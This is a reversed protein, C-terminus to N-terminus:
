RAGVTSMIDRAVEDLVALNQKHHVLEETDWEADEEAAKIDAVAKAKLEALLPEIKKIVELDWCDMPKLQDVRGSLEGTAKRMASRFDQWHSDASPQTKAKDPFYAKFIAKAEAMGKERIKAAIAQQDKKELQAVKGAEALTLFRKDCAHQVEKPATLVLLYRDVNRGCGGFLKGIKDRTKSLANVEPPLVAKGRKALEIKRAACRVKQLDSLHRGMYNDDIFLAEAAEEDLDHVVVKITKWGLRTAMKVRRHGSLITGDALIIIPDKQGDAELSAELERDAEESEPPFYLDQL